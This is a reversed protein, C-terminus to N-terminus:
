DSGTPARDVGPGGGLGPRSPPPGLPLSFSFVSGVGVESEAWIRGGHSRVIGRAIALGLGIGRGRRNGARWFRDFVKGLDERPIGAGTDRVHVLLEGSLAECTLRVEGDEPTHKVANGVLNSLVQQIRDGDVWVEPLGATPIGNVVRINKVRALPTLMELAEEVLPGIPRPHADLELHGAEMRRVELLDQILREMVDASRRIATLYYEEQGPRGTARGARSREMAELGIFIAQLPNGLDHSVASLVEDRAELARRAERYLRANDVAVGVRRGLEMALELDESDLPRHRFPDGARPKGEGDGGNGRRAGLLVGFRRGRAQLPVAVVSHIGVRALLGAEAGDGFAQRLLVPDAEGLLLPTGEDVVRQLRPNRPRGEAGELFGLLVSALERDRHRAEVRRVDEGADDAVDLLCVDFVSEVALEAVVGLPDQRDMTRALMESVHSLFAQGREHRVRDSADRLMVTFRREGGTALKLISAEAPFEEGHKRVGQISQREAMRRAPVQASGFAEVHRRHADRSRVPLLRDLHEGLIEEAAYGFILEAGRNFLVIRHDGDISIIADSAMAVIGSFRAESARLAEEQAQLSRLDSLDTGNVLFACPRGDEGEVLSAHWIVPRGAGQSGRLHAEVPLATEGARAQNLCTRLGARDREVIVLDGMSEGAAEEQGYGTLTTTAPNLHLIRGELDLVLTPGPFTRTVERLLRLLESSPHPVPLSPTSSPRSVSPSPPPVLM